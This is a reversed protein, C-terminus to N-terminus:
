TGLAPASHRLTRDTFLATIFRGWQPGAPWTPRAHFASLHYWGAFAGACPADGSSSGPWILADRTGPASTLHVQWPQPQLSEFHLENEAPGESASHGCEWWFGCKIWLFEFTHMKGSFFFSPYNLILQLILNVRPSNITHQENWQSKCESHMQM